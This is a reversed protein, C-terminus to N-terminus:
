DPAVPSAPGQRQDGPRPFQGSGASRRRAPEGVAQQFRELFPRYASGVVIVRSCASCKQGQYGFASAVVGGIAEDLDADQDVVIANTGGMEAIVRKVHTQGPVPVAALRNIRLGVDRSGTFTIFQVLRHRVLAEGVASGEGPLLTVVGDPLGCERLLTCFRHAVVPTLSAPKFVLTNGTVIAASLMGVPIALPFNWPSLVLGVGRPRYELRNDEGPYPRARCRDLKRAEMAYFRLFDVAEVVDADAEVWSKGAEFLEWAAFEDRRAALAEAVAELLEARVTMNHDSWAPFAAAAQELAADVDATDAAEVSGVLEGPRAPNVSHVLTRGDRPPLGLLPYHGGLEEKV